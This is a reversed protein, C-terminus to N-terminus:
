PQGVIDLGRKATKIGELFFKLRSAQSAEAAAPGPQHHVVALQFDDGRGVLVIRDHALRNGPHFAPGNETGVNPFMGVVQFVLVAASLIELRKPVDYIPGFDGANVFRGLLAIANKNWARFAMGRTGKKTALESFPIAYGSM